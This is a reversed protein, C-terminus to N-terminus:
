KLNIRIVRDDDEIPSGRGDRNSTLLYLNGDPGEVVDRLRGFRRHFRRELHTTKRPDNPDLQVRYLTQGRLGTFLLSGAWPGRTAFTAGGPAWTESTSAHIVPPIMGERTEDGRVEPWGYNKGPEVLNVEDRCCGQFGSPGHETAYLRRTKPQWALGQPNRHGYSYVYSNAFPNDKPISGDPNLRLIKGNLSTLDQALRNEQADGMSWYLKGDPGFKVRGGDHNNAAAVNDILVKDLLGKGRKADERLRVLRNQMKGSANRYTYAVYLFFNQAFRPDLALGLLGAEGSSAVDLTMWPDPRLHGRELVRIRGGRETIFIRGDPAFDIAWPTDLGKILVDISFEPTPAATQDSVPVCAFILAIALLGFLKKRRFNNSDAVYPILAAM